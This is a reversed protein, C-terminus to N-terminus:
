VHKINKTMRSLFDEHAAVLRCTRKFLVIHGHTCSASYNFVVYLAFVIRLINEFSGRDMRHFQRFQEPDETELERLLHDRVGQTQRRQLWRKTWQRRRAARLRRRRRRLLLVLLLIKEDESDGEHNQDTNQDAM